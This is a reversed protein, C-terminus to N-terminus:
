ETDKDLFEEYEKEGMLENMLIQETKLKIIWGDQYPSKNILEPKEELQKNVEVVEGDFPIYVESAAKVSELMCFSEGKKLKQGKESIEVYVLDGLQLQAYDSIGITLTDKGNETLVWEHSKTFKADKHPIRGEALEVSFFRNQIFYQNSFHLNKPKCVSLNTIKRVKQFSPAPTFRFYSSRLPARFIRNFYM